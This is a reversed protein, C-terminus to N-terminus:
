VLIFYLILFFCFCISVLLRVKNVPPVRQDVPISVSESVKALPVTEEKDISSIVSTNKTVPIISEASVPAITDFYKSEVLKGITEKLVSYSVGTSFERKNGELFHNVKEASSEIADVDKPSLM